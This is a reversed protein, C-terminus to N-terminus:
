LASTVGEEMHFERREPVPLQGQPKEVLDTIMKLGMAEAVDIANSLDHGPTLEYDFYIKQKGDEKVIRTKLHYVKTKEPYNEVFADIFSHNHSSIALFGNGMLIEEAIGYSLASQYMPSTTSFAEDTVGLALVPGKTSGEFLKFFQKWFEVEHGYFSLDRFMKATVRDLYIVRSFISTKMSKAPAFGSVQASLMNWIIMKLLFTKGSMNSGSLIKIIENLGFTVDNAVQRDKVSKRPEGREPPSMVLSWGKEIIVEPDESFDVRAMDFEGIIYGYWLIAMLKGIEKNIRKCGQSNFRGRYLSRVISGKLPNIETIQIFSRLIEKALEEDVPSRDEDSSLYLDCIRQYEDYSLQHTKLWYEGDEVKWDSGGRYGDDKGKKEEAVEQKAIELEKKQKEIARKRGEQTEKIRSLYRQMIDEFSEEDVMREFAEIKDQVNKIRDFDDLLDKACTIDGYWQRLVPELYNAFQNLYVSDVGRFQDVFDGVRDRKDYIVCLVDAFGADQTMIISDAYVARLLPVISEIEKRIEDRKNSDLLSVPYAKDEVTEYLSKILRSINERAVNG